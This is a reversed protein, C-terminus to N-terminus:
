DIFPGRLDVDTIQNLSERLLIPRLAERATAALEITLEALFAKVVASWEHAGSIGLTV